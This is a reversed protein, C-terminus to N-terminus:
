AKPSMPRPKKRPCQHVQHDADGCYLCLHYQRRRIKEQESLPPRREGGIEMPSSLEPTTPRQGAPNDRRRSHDRVSSMNYEKIRADMQSALSIMEDLTKPTGFHILEKRIEDQLGRRYYQVLTEESWELESALRQFEATFSVLDRNAQRLKGIDEFASAKRHPDDFAQTFRAKFVTYNELIAPDQSELIPTCWTAARGTLLSSILGVKDVDNSYVSPHIRFLLDIQSIFDRFTKRDGNFKEPLCIKKRYPAIPPSPPKTLAQAELQMLREMLVQQNQQQLKLFTELEFPTNFQLSDSM